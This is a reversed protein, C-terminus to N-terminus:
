GPFVVTNIEGAVRAVDQYNVPERLCQVADLPDVGGLQRAGAQRAPTPVHGPGTM